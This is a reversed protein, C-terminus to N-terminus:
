FAVSTTSVAKPKSFDAHALTDASTDFFYNM